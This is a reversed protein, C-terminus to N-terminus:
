FVSKNVVSKSVFVNYLISGIFNFVITLLLMLASHAINNVAVSSACYYFADLISHYCSGTYFAIACLILPVHSKSYANTESEIAVTTLFGTISSNLIVVPISENVRATVILDATQRVPENALGALIGFICVAFLNLLLVLVLRRIDQSDKLFGSKETFLNLRFVNISIIAVSFLLAQLILNDVALSLYGGFGIVVGALLSKSVINDTIIM